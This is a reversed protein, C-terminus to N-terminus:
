DRRQPKYTLPAYIVYNIAYINLCIDVEGQIDGKKGNVGRNTDM